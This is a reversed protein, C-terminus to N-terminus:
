HSDAATIHQMEMGRFISCRMFIDLTPPVSKHQCFKAVLKTLGKIDRGTVDPFLLVLEDIFSADIALAFQQTMVQWIM